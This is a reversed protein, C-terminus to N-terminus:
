HIGILRAYYMKLVKARMDANRIYYISKIGISEIAVIAVIVWPTCLPEEAGDDSRQLAKMGGAILNGVVMFALAFM